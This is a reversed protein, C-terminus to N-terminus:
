IERCGGFLGRLSHQCLVHGPLLYLVDHSLKVPGEELGAPGSLAAAATGPGTQGLGAGTSDVLHSGVQGSRVQGERSKLDLTLHVRLAERTGTGLGAATIRVAPSDEVPLFHVPM